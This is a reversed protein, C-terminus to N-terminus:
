CGHIHVIRRFYMTRLKFIVVYFTGHNSITKRRWSYGFSNAAIKRTSTKYQEIKKGSVRKDQQANKKATAAVVVVTQM